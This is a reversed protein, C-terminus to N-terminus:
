NEVTVSDSLIIHRHVMIMQTSALKTGSVSIYIQMPFIFSLFVSSQTWKLTKQINKRCNGGSARDEAQEEKRKKSLVQAQSNSEKTQEISVVVVYYHIKLIAMGPLPLKFEAQPDTIQDLTRIICFFVVYYSMITM